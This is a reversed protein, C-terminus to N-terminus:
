FDCTILDPEAPPLASKQWRDLRSRHFLGAALSPNGM